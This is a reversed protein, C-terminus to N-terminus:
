DSHALMGASTSAVIVVENVKCGLAWNSWAPIIINTSLSVQTLAPISNVSPTGYSEHTTVFEPKESQDVCGQPLHSGSFKDVEILTRTM